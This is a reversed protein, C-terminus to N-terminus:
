YKICRLSLGVKKDSDIKGTTSSESYLFISWMSNEDRKTSTWFYAHTGNNEFKINKGDQYYRGSPLANFGYNDDGGKFTKSKLKDSAFTRGVSLFLKNWDNVSPIYWGNPCVGISDKQYDYLRGYSKLSDNNYYIGGKYSLNEAMWTQEGIKVWKYMKGDRNDVFTGKNQASLLIPIFFLLLFLKKM